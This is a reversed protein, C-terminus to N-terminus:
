AVKRLAKEAQKDKPFKKLHRRLRRAKNKERRGEKRYRECFAKNGGYKRNKTGGKAKQGAM